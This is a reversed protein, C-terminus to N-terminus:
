IYLFPLLLQYFIVQVNAVKDSKILDRVAASVVMRQNDCARLKKKRVGLHHIIEVRRTVWRWSNWKPCNWKRVMLHKKEGIKIVKEMITYPDRNVALWTCARAFRMSKWMRNYYCVYIYLNWSITYITYMKIRAFCIGKVNRRLM